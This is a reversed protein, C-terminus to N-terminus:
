CDDKLSNRPWPEKVNEVWKTLNFDTYARKYTEIYKATPATVPDCGINVANAPQYVRIWDVSMTAPVPVNTLDLEGFTESLGLNAILYMPEQAILRQGVSTDDDSTLAGSRLTWSLKGDNVWTIYGDDFGNKYEFAYTAFCGTGGREYCDQNLRALCSTTQQFAGGRYSNYTATEPDHIVINPGSVNNALYARNFPAWQASFSAMGVGNEVVAEFM